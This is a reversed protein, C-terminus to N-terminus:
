VRLGSLAAGVSRMVDEAENYPTEDEGDSHDNKSAYIEAVRLSSFYRATSTATPPNSAHSAQKPMAAQALPTISHPREWSCAEARTNAEKAKPLGNESNQTRKRTSPPVRLAAAAMNSFIPRTSM